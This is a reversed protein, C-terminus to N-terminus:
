IFIKKTSILFLEKRHHKRILVLQDTNIIFNQDFNHLESIIESRFKEADRELIDKNQIQNKAM